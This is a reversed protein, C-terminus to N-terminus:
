LNNPPTFLIRTEHEYWKRRHRLRCLRHHYIRRDDM